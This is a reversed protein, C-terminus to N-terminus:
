RALVRRLRGMLLKTGLGGALALALGFAAADLAPQWPTVPLGPLPAAPPPAVTWACMTRDLSGDARGITLYVDLEGTAVQVPPFEYGGGIAQGLVTESRHGPQTLTAQVGTVAPDPAPGAGRVMVFLTNSGPHEPELHTHVVLDGVQSTTDAQLAPGVSASTDAPPAPATAGLAAAGWLVVLMTGVEFPVSRALKV